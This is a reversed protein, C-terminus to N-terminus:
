YILLYNFSIKIQLNLQQLLTQTHWLDPFQISLTIRRINYHNVIEGAAFFNRCKITFKKKLTPHVIEVPRTTKKNSHTTAKSKKEKMKHVIYERSMSSSLTCHWLDLIKLVCLDYQEKVWLCTETYWIQLTDIKKQVVILPHLCNM